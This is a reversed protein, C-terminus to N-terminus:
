EKVVNAKISAPLIVRRRVGAVTLLWYWLRILM